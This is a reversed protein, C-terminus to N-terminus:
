HKGKLLFKTTLWRWFTPSARMNTNGGIHLILPELHERGFTITGHVPTEEGITLITHVLSDAFADVCPQNYIIIAVLKDPAVEVVGGLQQYLRLHAIAEQINGHLSGHLLFRPNNNTM